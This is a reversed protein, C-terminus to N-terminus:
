LDKVKTVAQPGYVASASRANLCRSVRTWFAVENFGATNSRTREGINFRRDFQTKAYLQTREYVRSMREYFRSIDIM